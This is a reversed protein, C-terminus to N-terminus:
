KRENHSLKKLEAMLTNIRELSSRIRQVRDGLDIDEQPKFHPSGTVRGNKHDIYLPTRREEYLEAEKLVPKFELVKGMEEPKKAAKSM